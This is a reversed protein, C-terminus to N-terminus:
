PRPPLPRMDLIIGGHCSRLQPDRNQDFGSVGNGSSPTQGGISGKSGSPTNQPSSPPAIGGGSGKPGRDPYTEELLTTVERLVIEAASATAFVLSQMRGLNRADQETWSPKAAQPTRPQRPLYPVREIVDAAAHAMAELDIIRSRLSELSERLEEVRDDSSDSM